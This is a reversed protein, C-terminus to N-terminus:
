FLPVYSVITYGWKHAFDNPSMQSLAEHPRKNNYFNVWKQAVTLFQGLTDYRYRYVVAHKFLGVFREAYPNDTPTGARSMSSFFGKRLLEDITKKAGYQKGQDSHFITKPDMFYIQRVTNVVLDATMSYDFVFSLVQRTQKMLAFCGRVKTRDSLMFEFIDSFIIRCSLKIQDNNALNPHIIDAKGPYVYKKKRCRAEIGYKKMIRKIRNKGVTLLVGLKKHGLTDDDDHVRQIENAMHKDKVAIKSTYYFAGRSFELAKAMQSRTYPSKSDQMLQESVM